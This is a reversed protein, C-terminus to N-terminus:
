VKTRKDFKIKYSTFTKSRDHWILVFCWGHYFTVDIQKNSTDWVIHYFTPYEYFKGETAYKFCMKILKDYTM